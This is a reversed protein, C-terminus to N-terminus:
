RCATTSSRVRTLRSSCCATECGSCRRGRNDNLITLATSALRSDAIRSGRVTALRSSCGVTGYATRRRGYEDNLIAWTVHDIGRRQLVESAARQGNNLVREVILRDSADHGYIGRKRSYAIQLRHLEETSNIQLKATGPSLGPSNVSPIVKMRASRCYNRRTITPTPHRQAKHKSPTLFACPSRSM